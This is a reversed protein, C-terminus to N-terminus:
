HYSILGKVESEEKLTKQHYNWGSCPWTRKMFVLREFNDSTLSARKAKMIGSRQSCLREVAASSPIATNYTVFVDVGAARILAPNGKMFVLREFNDSTLSARKAKMIGSRQSCLREVAASSPIATNYTVFVDVGAARILAPNGKMFVLREFNDSTLSARKAKMIDSGQSCLREVAASSPIATNYTVFVDVGAARFLAPFMAQELVKSRQEESCWSELEQGMKSSLRTANTGETATAAPSMLAKSIDDEEDEHHSSGESTDLVAQETVEFLLRSIVAVVKEPNFLRVVPLKFLPHIATAMLCDM